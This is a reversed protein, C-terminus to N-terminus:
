IIDPKNRVTGNKTKYLDLFYKKEYFGWPLRPDIKNCWKNYMNLFFFLEFIM